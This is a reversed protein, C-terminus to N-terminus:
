MLSNKFMSSPLSLFFICLLGYDQVDRSFFNVAPRQVQGPYNKKLFGVAWDCVELLLLFSATGKVNKLEM